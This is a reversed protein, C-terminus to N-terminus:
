IGVYEWVLYIITFLGTDMIVLNLQIYFCVVIVIFVCKKKTCESLVSIYKEKM